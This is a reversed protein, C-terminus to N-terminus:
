SLQLELHNVVTNIEKLFMLHLIYSRVSNTETALWKLFYCSLKEDSTYM